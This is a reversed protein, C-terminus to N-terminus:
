EKNKGIVQKNPHILFSQSYKDELVLLKDTVKL